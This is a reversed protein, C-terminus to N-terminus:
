GMLEKARRIAADHRCIRARVAEAGIANWNADGLTRLLERNEFALSLLEAHSARLAKDAAVVSVAEPIPVAFPDPIAALPHENSM